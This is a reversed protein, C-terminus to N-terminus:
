QVNDEPLIVNLGRYGRGMPNCKVNKLTLNPILSATCEPFTPNSSVPRSGESTDQCQSM